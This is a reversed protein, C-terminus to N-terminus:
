GIDSRTLPQQRIAGSCTCESQTQASLRQLNCSYLVVHDDDAYAPADRRFLPKGAKRIRRQVLLAACVGFIDYRINLCRTPSRGFKSICSSSRIAVNRRLSTHSSSRLSPRNKVVQMYSHPSEEHIESIHCARTTLSVLHPLFRRLSFPQGQEGIGHWETM